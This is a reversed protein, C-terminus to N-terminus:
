DERYLISRRKLIASPFFLLIFVGFSELCLLVSLTPLFGQFEDRIRNRVRMVQVIPGRMMIKTHCSELHELAHGRTSNRSGTLCLFQCFTTNDFYVVSM